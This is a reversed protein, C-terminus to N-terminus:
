RDVEAALAAALEDACLHLARAAEAHIKLEGNDADDRWAAVLERVMKPAPAQVEVMGDGDVTFDEWRNGAFERYGRYYGKGRTAFESVEWDRGPLRHGPLRDLRVRMTEDSM